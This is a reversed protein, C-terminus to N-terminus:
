KTFLERWSEDLETWRERDSSSSHTEPLCLAGHGRGCVMETTVPDLLPSSWSGITVPLSLRELCEPCRSRQDYFSWYVACAGALIFALALALGGVLDRMVGSGYRFQIAEALEIWALMMAALLLLTKGSFFAWYRVRSRSGHSVAFHPKRVQVMGIGIAVAFVLGAAYWLLPTFRQVNLATLKPAQSYRVENSKLLDLMEREASAISVGPKLRAIASILFRRWPQNVEMQRFAIAGSLLEFRRPLVGIVTAPQGDLQITRGVIRSDKGLETWYDYTIVAADALDGARFTRGLVAKVGLVDFFNPTVAPALRYRRADIQARRRVFGTIGQFSEAQDRWVAFAHQPVSQTSGMSDQQTVVVLQEADPYPLPALFSRIGRFGGSAAATAGIFLLPVLLAMLPGRYFRRVAAATEERGFRMWVAEPFSALAFRYIERKRRPTLEGREALLAWWNWAEYNRRDRWEKRRPAPVLWSAAYILARNLRSEEV